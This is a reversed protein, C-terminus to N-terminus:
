PRSLPAHTELSSLINEIDRCVILRHITQNRSSNGWVACHCRSRPRTTDVTELSLSGPDRTKWKKFEEEDGSCAKTAQRANKALPEEPNISMKSPYSIERLLHVNVPGTTIRYIRGPQYFDSTIKLFHFSIM